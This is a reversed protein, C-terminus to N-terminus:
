KIVIDDEKNSLHYRFNYRIFHGLLDKTDDDLNDFNKILNIINKVKALDMINVINNDRFFQFVDTIVKKREVDDHQELWMDISKDLNRSIRSLTELMFRDQNICWYFMSHATLDKKTAKIVKIDDPHRLLLGFLSYNPVFYELKKSMKVFQKSHIEDYRFGPGDFNFVRKIGFKKYWKCFAAATMALHGGKSHGLVIVNRDWFSVSTNFYNIADVEAAVPYQYFMAFDEEWGSLNHDTGEFVILKEKTPLKMTIACFQKNYTVDYVYNSLLIGRYRIKDKIVKVLKLIDKQLIGLRVYKKLDATNLFKDLAVDLRIEEKEVINTFNIYAISSVVVADVENFRKEHFTCDGTSKVYEMLNMM